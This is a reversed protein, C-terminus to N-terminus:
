QAAHNFATMSASLDPRTRYPAALPEGIFLGQGPMAVSKWYAELLTEGRLYHAMLVPINPFKDQFSCPEVVTGYSGTAGAELWRLSSMQSSDTLMGGFSTLHDAAAGPLFHNSGLAAVDAAGIFYFLVDMRGSLPPTNIREVKIARYHAVAAALPYQAARGNRARDSSVVLYATGAPATGDASVGRDILAEAHALDLAAITMAPRIHLEDYPKTASANFYPSLRTLTCGSACFRRDFGFAFASTISMCDVRYPRAWTLAYAQIRGHLQQDVRAKLASFAEPSLTDSKPDFSVHAVNSPPIHRRSIYYSGIAVSLPDATNIVVALDAARLSGSAATTAAASTTMPMALAAALTCLLEFGIRL